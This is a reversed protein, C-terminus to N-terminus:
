RGQISIVMDIVADGLLVGTGNRAVTLTLKAKINM